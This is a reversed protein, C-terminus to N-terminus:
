GLGVSSYTNALADEIIRLDRSDATGMQMRAMAAATPNQQIAIQRVGPGLLGGLIAGTLGGAARKMFGRQPTPQGRLRALLTETTSPGRSAGLLAGAGAGIAAATGMDPINSNSRAIDALLIQETETM